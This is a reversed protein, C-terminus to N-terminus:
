ARVAGNFGYMMPRVGINREHWLRFGRYWFSFWFRGRPSLEAIAAGGCVAGWEPHTAFARRITACWAPSVITDADIRAIIEGRARDFGTARAYSIGRREEHVVRVLPFSEAIEVTRDTSGNDVVLIEDPP